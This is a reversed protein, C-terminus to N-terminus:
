ISVLRTFPQYNPKKSIINSNKGLIEQLKNKDLHSDLLFSFVGTDKMLVLVTIEWKTTHRHKPLFVQSWKRRLELVSWCYCDLPQPEKLFNRSYSAHWSCVSRRQKRWCFSIVLWRWYTLLLDVFPRTARKTACQIQDRQMQWIICINMIYETLNRGLSLYAYAIKDVLDDSYTM